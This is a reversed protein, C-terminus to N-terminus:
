SRPVLRRRIARVAVSAAPGPDRLDLLGLDGAGRWSRFRERLSLAGDQRERLARFAAHMELEPIVLKAGWRLEPQPGLPLGALTAYLRWASDGGSADGLGFQTPIRVNAEILFVEGTEAHHKTEVGAVGVFGAEDLLRKALAMSEPVPASACLSAAGFGPPFQRIKRCGFAM